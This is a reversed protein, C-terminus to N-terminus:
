LVLRVPPLSKPNWTIIKLFHLQLPVSFFAIPMITPAFKKVEFLMNPQTTQLAMARLTEVNNYACRSLLM